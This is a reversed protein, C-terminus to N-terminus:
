FRKKRKARKAAAKGKVKPKWKTEATAKVVPETKSEAKAKVAPKTKTEAETEVAPETKIEAEAEVALETRTEAEAKVKSEKDGGFFDKFKMERRRGVKLRMRVYVVILEGAVPQKHGSNLHLILHHPGWFSSLNNLDPEAGLIVLLSPTSCHFLVASLM